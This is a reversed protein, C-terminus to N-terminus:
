SSIAPRCRQHLPIRGIIRCGAIAGSTIAAAFVSGDTVRHIADRM